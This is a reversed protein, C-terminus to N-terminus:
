NLTYTRARSKQSLKHMLAPFRQVMGKVTDRSEDCTQAFNALQDAVYLATQELTPQVKENTRAPTTPQQQIAPLKSINTSHDATTCNTSM